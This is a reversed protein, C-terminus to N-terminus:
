KKRESFMLLAIVAGSIMTFVIIGNQWIGEDSMCGVQRYSHESAMRIGACISSGTNIIIQDVNM